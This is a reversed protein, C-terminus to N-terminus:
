RRRMRSRLWCRRKYATWRGQILCPRFLKGCIACQVVGLPLVPIEVTDSLPEHLSSRTPSGVESISHDSSAGSLDKVPEPVNPSSAHGVASRGIAAKQSKQKEQRRRRATLMRRRKVNDSQRYRKQASAAKERQKKRRCNPSCYKNQSHKLCCHFIKKCGRCRFQRCLCREYKM